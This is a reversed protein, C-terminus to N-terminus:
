EHGGEKQGSPADEQWCVQLTFLPSGGADTVTVLAQGLLAHGSDESRVTVRHSDYSLTWRTGDWFGGLSAAAQEYDGGCAKLTEAASEAYIV